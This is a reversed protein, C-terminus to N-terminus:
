AYCSYHQSESKCNAFSVSCCMTLELDSGCKLHDNAITKAVDRESLACGHKMAVSWHVNHLIQLQHHRRTAGARITISSIGQFIHYYKLAM